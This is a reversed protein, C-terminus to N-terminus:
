QSNISIQVKDDRHWWGGGLAQFLAATDAYRSAQAQIRTTVAQFYQREAILLSLFSIGGIKFQAEAIRLAEKSAREADAAAQLSRADTDLASLTNAVNQFAVLVTQQYQAHAQQYAAISARRNALLAGGHFIPQLLNGGINWVTAPGTFLHHIHNSENGYNGSLTIQPFLQATAVGVQASAVHLLAESARVDPRQRVLESPLSTPLSTPLVISDLDFTPVTGDVPFAGVLVYLSNRAQTLNQELVPLLAKTQALQTEQALVDVKSVAGRKFQEKVIFVQKEQIKILEQTEKIEGRLASESIATTVINATLTLYAAELEFRQYQVQARYTELQRRSGGFIDLVYSVSANANYLNFLSVTSTTSGFKTSSFRQRQANANADFAPILLSGVQSRYNEQAQVLAAKAAKLNPSNKIGTTILQNLPESHFLMWWEAPIDTRAAFTQRQGGAASEAKVTEKPLTAETYDNVDPAKPHHFNPGVACGSLLVSFLIIIHLRYRAM